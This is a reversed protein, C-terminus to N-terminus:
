EEEIEIGLQRLAEKIKNSYEDESMSGDRARIEMELSQFKSQLYNMVGMLQAIKGRPIRFKLDLEELLKVLQQGFVKGAKVAGGKEQFPTLEFDDVTVKVSTAIHEKIMRLWEIQETTFNREAKKQQLLWDAFRRNVTEPFPELIAEEGITFRILSIIDTLIKQAGAKKVKSQELQEYAQWVIEPTM